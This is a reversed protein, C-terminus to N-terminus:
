GYVVRCYCYPLRGDKTLNNIYWNVHGRKCAGDLPLIRCQNRGQKSLGPRNDCLGGSALNPDCLADPRQLILSGPTALARSVTQFYVRRAKGMAERLLLRVYGPAM